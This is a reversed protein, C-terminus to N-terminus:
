QLYGISKLAETTTFDGTAPEATPLRERLDGTDFAGIIDVLEKPDSGHDYLHDGRADVILKRGGLLVSRGQEGFLLCDAVLPRAPAESTTPLPPGAGAIGEAHLAQLITAAVQDLGVDGSVVGASYGPLTVALPVRLVEEHLSHGHGMGGHEWFEEGHDGLLVVSVRRAPDMAELAGLLASVAAVSRTVDGEYLARASARQEDDLVVEGGRVERTSAFCRGADEDSGCSWPAGLEGAGGRYPEHPDMYHVWLFFRGAGMRGLFDRAVATVGAADAPVRRELAAGPIAFLPRGAIAAAARAWADQERFVDFGRALGFAHSLYPNSVIAANVFGADRLHDALLPADPRISSVSRSGGLRWGAGHVDAPVGSMVTAISPLTWPAEAHADPFRASRALWRALPDDPALEGVVRWFSDARLTDITVLLLAGDTAPAALIPPELAQPPQSPAPIADGRVTPVLGVGLALALVGVFRPMSRLPVHDGILPPVLLALLPGRWQDPASLMAAVGSVAFTATFARSRRCPGSLIASLLAFVPPYLIAASGSALASTTPASASEYM